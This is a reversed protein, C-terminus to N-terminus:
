IKYVYISSSALALFFYIFNKNNSITEIIPLHDNVNKKNKNKAHNVFHSFAFIRKQKLHNVM